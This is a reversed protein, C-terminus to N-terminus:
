TAEMADVLSLVDELARAASAPDIVEAEDADVLRVSMGAAGVLRLLMTASPDLKGREYDSVRGPAVGAIEALERQSMEAARRAQRILHGAPTYRWSM